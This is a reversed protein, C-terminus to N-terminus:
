LSKRGTNRLPTMENRSHNVAVVLSGKIISKLTLIEDNSLCAIKPILYLGDFDTDQVFTSASKKDKAADPIILVCFVFSPM